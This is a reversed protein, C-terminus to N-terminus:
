SSACRRGTTSEEEEVKGVRVEEEELLHARTGNPAVRTGKMSSIAWAVRRRGHHWGM